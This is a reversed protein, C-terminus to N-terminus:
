DGDCLRARQLAAAHLGSLGGICVGLDYALSVKVCNDTEAWDNSVSALLRQCYDRMQESWRSIAAIDEASLAQQCLLSLAVTTMRPIDEMVERLTSDTPPEVELQILRALRSTLEALVGQTGLPAEAYQASSENAHLWQGTAARRWRRGKTLRDIPQRPDPMLDDELLPASSMVGNM